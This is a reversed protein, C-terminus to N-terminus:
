SHGTVCDTASSTGERGPLRDWGGNKGMETFPVVEGWNGLSHLSSGDQNGETGAGGVGLGDAFRTLLEAEMHSRLIVWKEGDQCQYWLGLCGLASSHYVSSRPPPQRPPLAAQNWCESNLLENTWLSCNWYLSCNGTDAEDTIVSINKWKEAPESSLPLCLYNDAGRWFM